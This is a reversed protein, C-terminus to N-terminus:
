SSQVYVVKQSWVFWLAIVALIMLSQWVLVHATEFVGPLFTGIYFLSVMRVLNLSFLAPMGIALGLLKGKIKAPYAIVACLLIIMSIIGTCENVIIMSFDTSSVLTGDVQVGTGLVNLIASTSQAVFTRLSLMGDTEVLRSYAFISVGICLAFILCARVGVRNRQLFLRLRGLLGVPPGRKVGRARKHRKDRAM